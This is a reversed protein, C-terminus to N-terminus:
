KNIYLSQGESYGDSVAHDLGSSFIGADPALLGALDRLNAAMLPDNEAQTDAMAKIQAQRYGLDRGVVRALTEAVQTHKSFSCGTTLMASAIIVMIINKM